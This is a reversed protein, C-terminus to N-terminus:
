LEIEEENATLDNVVQQKELQLEERNIPRGYLTLQMRANTAYYELATRFGQIFEPSQEGYLDLLPHM